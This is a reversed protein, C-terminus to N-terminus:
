GKVQTVCKCPEIIIQPFQRRRSKRTTTSSCLGEGCRACFVEFEVEVEKEIAVKTQIRPM